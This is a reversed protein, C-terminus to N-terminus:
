LFDNTSCIRRFFSFLLRSFDFNRLTKKKVFGYVPLYRLLPTAISQLSQPM